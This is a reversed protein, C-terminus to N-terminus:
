QKQESFITYIRLKSGLDLLEIMQKESVSNLLENLFNQASTITLLIPQLKELESLELEKRNKFEIFIGNMIEVIESQEQGYKGLDMLSTSKGSYDVIYHQYNENTSIITKIISDNADIRDFCIGLASDQKLDVVVQKVENMDIGVNLYNSTKNISN